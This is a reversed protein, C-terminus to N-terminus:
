SEPLKLRAGALMVPEATFSRTVTHEPEKALGVVLVVLGAVLVILGAEGFIVPGEKDGPAIAPMATPEVTPTRIKIHKNSRCCIKPM